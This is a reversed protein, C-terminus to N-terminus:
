KADGDTNSKATHKLTKRIFKRFPDPDGKTRAGIHIVSSNDRCIWIRRPRMYFSLFLGIIMLMGGTWVVPIGSDKVVGLVTFYEKAQTPSVDKTDIMLDLLSFFLDLDQNMPMNLDPFNKFAFISWRASGDILVDIKVAPNSTGDPSGSRKFDRYLESLRVEISDGFGPVTEKDGVSMEFTAIPPIDKPAGKLSIGIRAKDNESTAGPGKQSIGYESQYVTFGNLMLPHNVRIDKSYVTGDDQTVIVSSTYSKPRGPHTNYYEVEFQELQLSFGLPIESGDPLTMNSTTEGKELVIRGRKGTIFSILGGTLLLILSIHVVSSGLYGFRGKVGYLCNEGVQRLSFHSGSFANRIDELTGSKFEIHIPMNKLRAVDAIAEPKFISKLKSPLKVLSCLMLNIVLLGTLGIFLPSSYVRNFRFIIIIYSVLAGYGERYFEIPRGQPLITGVISVVVIAILLVIGFQISSLTKLISTDTSNNTKTM